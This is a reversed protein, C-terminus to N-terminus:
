PALKAYQWRLRDLVVNASYFERVRALARARLPASQADDLASLIAEALEDVRGAEVVFGSNGNELMEPIAGVRSAVVPTGAAMAELVSMPMGEAYSPLVFVAARRLLRAKEEGDVWGPFLVRSGLGYEQAMQELQKRASGLGCLKLCADPLHAAIGSFANLLDFVGKEQELRGLFLISSERKEQPAVDMQLDIPNPMVHVVVGPVVSRLWRAVEDNLCYILSCIQLTKVVKRRSGADLREDVFQRFEGGHLHFIVPVGVTAALRMFVRKRWFSGHSAGHVHLLSVRRMILMFAFRILASAAVWLKRSASGETATTLYRCRRSSFMGNKRYVAIVSAMGGKADPCPGIM